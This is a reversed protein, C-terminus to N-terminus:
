DKGQEKEKLDKRPNQTLSRKLTFRLKHDLTVSSLNYKHLIQKVISLGRVDLLEDEAM